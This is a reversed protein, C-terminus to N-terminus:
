LEIDEDDYELGTEDDVFREDYVTNRDLDNLDFAPSYNYKALISCYEEYQDDTLQQTADFRDQIELVRKFDAFEDSFAESVRLLESKDISSRDAQLTRIEDKIDSAANRMQDVKHRQKKIIAANERKESKIQNLQRLAQDLQLEADHLLKQISELEETADRKELKLKKTQKMLAANDSKRKLQEVTLFDRDVTQEGTLFKCNYLNRTMKDIERNLSTMNKRNTFDRCNLKKDVEPFIFIHAHVRSTVTKHTSPDVYDHIEDRHIKADLVVDAKYHNNIKQVVDSIWADTLADDLDVPVSVIADVLTVANSRLKRTANNQYQQVKQDYLDCMEKYSLDYLSTNLETKSKDIDKNSHEHKLREDADAHRMMAKAEAAGHCKGGSFQVAAVIWVGERLVYIKTLM